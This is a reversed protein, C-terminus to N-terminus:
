RGRLFQGLWQVAQAVRNATRVVIRTAEGDAKYFALEVVNGKALKTLGASEGNKIIETGDTVRLVVQEDDTAMITVQSTSLEVKQVLGRTTLTGQSLISIMLLEGTTPNYAAWVVIDGVDLDSVSIDSVGDKKLETDSSVTLTVPGGDPPQVTLTAAGANISAITGYAKVVQASELTLELADMSSPDYSGSKVRDAVLIDDFSAPEGDRKLIAIGPVRLTVLDIGPTAVTVFNDGEPNTSKGAIVGTIDVAEPSKLFLALVEGTRTNYRTTPRVVDGLRVEAISVREQNRWIPTDEAIQLKLIGGEQTAVVITRAKRVLGSVVGSVFSEDAAVAAATIVLAKSTEPDYRLKVRANLPLFDLTVEQDSVILKTDPSVTLVLTGGGTLAITVTPPTASSDIQTVRGEAEGQMVQELITQLRKGALERAVVELSRVEFSVIDYQAKIRQGLALGEFTGEEGEITIESGDTVTLQIPRGIDPLVTIAKRYTDRLVILGEIEMAPPEMGLDDLAQRYREQHTALVQQLVAQAQPAVRKAVESLISLHRATNAKLANKLNNIRTELKKAEAEELLRKLFNVTQQATRVDLLILRGTSADQQVIAVLAEGPEIDEFGIPLDITVSEGQPNTLTIQNGDKSAVVGVLHRYRTPEEPKVLAKVAVLQGAVDKVTAALFQGVALDDPSPAENGPIVLGTEATVKIEKIGQKTDLTVAVTGDPLATVATVQGFVGSLPEDGPAASLQGVAALSLLAAALLLLAKVKWGKM